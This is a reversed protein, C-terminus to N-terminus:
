WCRLWCWRYWRWWQWGLPAAGTARRQPVRTPATSTVVMATMKPNSESITAGAAAAAVVGNAIPVRPVLGSWAASSDAPPM